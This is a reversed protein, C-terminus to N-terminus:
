EDAADSTYLLCLQTLLCEVVWLNLLGVLVSQLLDKDVVVEELRLVHETQARGRLKDPALLHLRQRARGNACPRCAELVARPLELQVAWHDAVLVPPQRVRDAGGVHVLHLSRVIQRWLHRLVVGRDLLDVDAATVDIM